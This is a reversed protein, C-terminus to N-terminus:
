QISFFYYNETENRTYTTGCDEFLIRDNLTNYASFIQDNNDQLTNFRSNRANVICYDGPSSVAIGLRYAYSMNDQTLEPLYDISNLCLDWEFAEGLSYTITVNDSVQANLDSLDNNLKLVFLGDLFLNADTVLEPAENETCFNILMSSIESNLWITEDLAYTNNINEVNIIFPEPEEYGCIDLDDDCQFSM